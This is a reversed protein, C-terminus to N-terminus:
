RPYFSGQPAGQQMLDLLKAWFTAEAELDPDGAAANKFRELPPKLISIAQSPATAYQTAADHMATVLEALPVARSLGQQRLYSGNEDLTMRKGKEPLDPVLPHLDPALRGRSANLGSRWRRLADDAPRRM